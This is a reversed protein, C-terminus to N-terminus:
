GVALRGEHGGLHEPEGVGLGGLHAVAGDARDAGPHGPRALVQEPVEFGGRALLPASKASGPVPSARAAVLGRTPVADAPVSLVPPEAISRGRRATTAAAEAAPSTRARAAGAPAWTPVE